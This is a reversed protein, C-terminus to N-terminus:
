NLYKVNHNAKQASSSVMKTALRIESFFSILWFVLLEIEQQVSTM